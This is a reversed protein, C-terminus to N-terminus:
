DVVSWHLLTFACLAFSVSPPVFSAPPAPRLRGGRAAAWRLCFALGGFCAKLSQIQPRGAKPAEGQLDNAQGTLSCGPPTHQKAQSSQKTPVTGLRGGRRSSEKTLRSGNWIRACGPRKASSMLMMALSLQPSSDQKPGSPTSGRGHHIPIHRGAQGRLAGPSSLVVANKGMSALKPHFSGWVCILDLLNTLSMATEKKGARSGPCETGPSRQSRGPRVVADLAHQGLSSTRGDGQHKGPPLFAPEPGWIGLAPSVCGLPPSM